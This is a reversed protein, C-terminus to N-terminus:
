VAGDGRGIYSLRVLLDVAVDGKRVEPADIAEFYSDDLAFSIRTEDDKLGKLDIKFPQLGCM